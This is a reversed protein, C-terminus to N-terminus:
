DETLWKFLEEISDAFYITFSPNEEIFNSISGFKIAGIQNGSHLDIWCYNFDIDRLLIGKKNKSTIFGCYKGIEHTSQEEWEKAIYRKIM